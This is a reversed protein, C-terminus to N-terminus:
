QMVETKDPYWSAKSTRAFVDQERRSSVLTDWERETMLKDALLEIAFYTKVIGIQEIMCELQKNTTTHDGYIVELVSQMELIDDLCECELSVGNVSNISQQHLSPKRKTKETSSTKGGNATSQPILSLQQGKKTKKGVKAVKAPTKGPGAKPSKTGEGSRSGEVWTGRTHDWYGFSEGRGTTGGTWTSGRNYSMAGHTPVFRYYSWAYTNSLWAGQFEVGQSRNIIATDGLHNMIAFRNNGIHKGIVDAFVPDFALGPDNALLKHLYNRIYHWTDSKSPDESNGTHLVGNHMLLMPMDATEGGFGFVPYPHCNDMDIDGHTRMRYHVCCDKGRATDNYFDVAEQANRPIIKNYHLHGDEAWMVGIGDKNRSYFDRLHEETFNVDKTQQILLCM